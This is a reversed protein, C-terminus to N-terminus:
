LGCGRRKRDTRGVPTWAGQGRNSLGSAQYKVLPDLSSPKGTDPLSRIKWYRRRGAPQRSPM